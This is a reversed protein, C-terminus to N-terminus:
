AEARRPFNTKAEAGHLEVVKSDYAKAALEPEKFYGLHYHHKLVTLTARFMSKRKDWSVGRFGSKNNSQKRRNIAQIQFTTWRCNEPTYDGDNDIRDLSLGTPRKGMDELFNDFSVLWRPCVKIGRGGYHKYGRSNPNYCRQIMYKYTHEESSYKIRSM